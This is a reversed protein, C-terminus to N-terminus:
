RWHGWSASLLLVIDRDGAAPAGEVAASALTLGDLPRRRMCQFRAVSRVAVRLFSASSSDGCLPARRQRARDDRIQRQRDIHKAIHAPQAVLNRCSSGATEEPSYRSWVTFSGAARNAWIMGHIERESIAAHLDRRREGRAPVTTGSPWGLLRRHRRQSRPPRIWSCSGATNALIMRVPESLRRPRRLRSMGIDFLIANVPEVLDSVQDHLGVRAIQLFDGPAQRPPPPWLLPPPPPPPTAPWIEQWASRPGRGILLHPSVRDEKIV